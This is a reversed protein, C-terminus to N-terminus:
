ADSSALLFLMIYYTMCKEVKISSPSLTRRVHMNITMAM